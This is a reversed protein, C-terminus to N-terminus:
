TGELAGIASYQSIVPPCILITDQVKQIAQHLIAPYVMYGIRWSAFGYAKSLSYLSITHNEAEPISGSSFHKTNDYVFYEYAEDSIHFINNEKCIRNVTRLDQEKYVVGSPNNPSITVIARTRPTIANKLYEFSIQYNDDTPVVVPVCDVMRIAMEYNFYYPAFLIIEDGRSAISLLANIFGLNAGGTVCIRNKSTVKIHNERELKEKIREIL